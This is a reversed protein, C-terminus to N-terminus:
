ALVLTKPWSMLMWITKRATLIRDKQSKEESAGDYKSIEILFHAAIFMKIILASNAFTLLCM